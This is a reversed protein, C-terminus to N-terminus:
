QLRVLGTFSLVALTTLVWGLAIHVRLYIWAAWALLAGRAPSGRRALSPRWHEEMQLSIVPILADLSYVAPVFAPYDQFEAPIERNQRWAETGTLTASTPAMIKEGAAWGFIWWGLLWFALLGWFARSPRYGYGVTLGLFRLRLRTSESEGGRRVRERHKAMLVEVAAERSGHSRLAEALREYPQPAFDARELWELRM